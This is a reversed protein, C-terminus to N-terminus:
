LLFKGGLMLRLAMTLTIYCRDTLPTIVLRGSNGVWEYAYMGKYDTILIQVDKTESMWYFRLQQQWAFSMPGEAKNDILSQIVDRGHVDITILAIIKARLDPDLKGLVLQILAFLRENCLQLM